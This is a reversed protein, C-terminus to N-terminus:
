SEQDDASRRRAANANADADTDVPTYLEEAAPLLPRRERAAPGHSLVLLVDGSSRVRSSIRRLDEVRPPVALVTLVEPDGFEDDGIAMDGVPVGDLLDGLGGGPPPGALRLDIGYAGALRQGIERGLRLSALEGVGAEGAPPVLIVQSWDHGDLRAVVVPAPVDEVIRDVPRGLERDHRGESPWGVVVLTTDREVAAHLVGEAVSAAARLVPAAECGMEDLEAGALRLLDDAAAREPQGGDPPLVHLPSVRGHDVAAIMGALRALETASRPRAVPLLVARGLGPLDRESTGGGRERRSRVVLLVALVLVTIAVVVTVTLVGTIALPGTALGVTAHDATSQHITPVVPRM